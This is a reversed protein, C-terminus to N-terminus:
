WDFAVRYEGRGAQSDEIRFALTYKNAEAPQQIITVTGRGYKLPAAVVDGTAPLPKRVECYLREIAKGSEVKTWSKDGQIYVDVVEDVNGRWVYAHARNTTSGLDPWSQQPPQADDAIAMSACLTCALLASVFVIFKSIKM